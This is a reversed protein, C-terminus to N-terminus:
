PNNTKNIVKNSINHKSHKRATKIEIDNVTDTPDTTRLKIIPRNRVDNNNHKNNNNNNSNNINNINNINVSNQYYKYYEYLIHIILILM